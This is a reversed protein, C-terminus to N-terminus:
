KITVDYFYLPLAPRGFLTFRKFFYSFIKEKLFRSIQIQTKNITNLIIFPIYFVNLTYRCKIKISQAFVRAFFFM